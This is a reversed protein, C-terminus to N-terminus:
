IILNKIENKIEFSVKYRLRIRLLKNHNIDKCQEQFLFQM